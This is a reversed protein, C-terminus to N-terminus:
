NFIGKGGPTLLVNGEDSVPQFYPCLYHQPPHKGIGIGIIDVIVIIILVEVNLLKSHKWLLLETRFIIKLRLLDYCKVSRKMLGAHLLIRVADASIGEQQQSGVM